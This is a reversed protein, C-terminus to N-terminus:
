LKDDGKYEDTINLKNIDPSVHDTAGSDFYWAPDIVTSQSNYQAMNAQRNPRRRRTDPTRSASSSGSNQEPFSAPSRTSPRNVTLAASTPQVSAQRLHEQEIRAEEQLLLGALDDFSFAETKMMFATIFAGYSSDLGSLLHGILDEDPVPHLNEALSDAISRKRQIYEIMSMSGKSLSQLQAKLQMRNARSQAQFTKEIAQCAMHSSTCRTVIALARESLTSQLWLLVFRDRKKWTVFAPNPATSAPTAPVVPSTATAPTGEIAPVEITTTPPNPNLVFEDLDFAELAAIITTRWLSYNERDLKITIPPIQLTLTSSTALNRLHPAGAAM